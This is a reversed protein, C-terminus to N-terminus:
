KGGIAAFVEPVVIQVDCFGIGWAPKDLEGGRTRGGGLADRLFPPLSQVDAGGRTLAPAESEFPTFDAHRVTAIAVYRDVMPQDQPWGPPPGLWVPKEVTEGARVVNNNERGFLVHVERNESLAVIALHLEQESANHVVLQALGGTARDDPDLVTAGVVFGEPERDPAGLRHVRAAEFGKARATDASVPVLTITIPFRGPEAIGQWLSRFRHERLLALGVDAPEARMTRVDRGSRDRLVLRDGARHLACDAAGKADREVVAVDCRALLEADVDAALRVRLPPHDDGVTRLLARLAVAPVAGDGVWEANCSTTSVRHVVASGVEQGDLDVLRLEANEGIGHIRGAAVLLRREGYRDVQYGPPVPRGSGGFVARGAAGVVQVLQGPRTGHGAVRARVAAAVMSWSANADVRQLENTLFWSLTGFAGAETTLEGAEQQAGCAAIQVVSPLDDPADDDLFLVNAPWFRAIRRHLLPATGATAERVGPARAGRLVGGSHCCDTVVVVNRSPLAALLSHLEDDTLDYGGTADVARSDYAVLTDDFPDDGFDRPARDLKSGDPIRSGHGSFWFLVRTDPGARAILHREFTRVIAEHTAQEGLLTVIDAPDFGFRTVLLDRARAVDNVPGALPGFAHAGAAAAYEDIGVLLALTAPPTTDQRHVPAPVVDPVSSASARSERVALFICIGLLVAAAVFWAGLHPLPRNASRPLM